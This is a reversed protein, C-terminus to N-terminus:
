GGPNPGQLHALECDVCGFLGARICGTCVRDVTGSCAIRDGLTDVSGGRQQDYDSGAVSRAFHLFESSHESPFSKGLGDNKYVPIKAGFKEVFRQALEQRSMM